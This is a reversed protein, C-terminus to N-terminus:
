FLANFRRVFGVELVALVRRDAEEKESKSM